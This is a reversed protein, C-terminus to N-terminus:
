PAGVSKQQPAAPPPPQLQQYRKHIAAARKQNEEMQQMQEETMAPEPLDTPREPVMGLHPWEDGENNMRQIGPYHAAAGTVDEGPEGTLWPVPVDACAALGFSASLLM